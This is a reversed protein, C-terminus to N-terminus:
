QMNEMAERIRDADGSMMADWGVMGIVAVMSLITLASLVLGIIACVRGAKLNSFSKPAYGMPNANYLKTDKAALVLAIIALVIGIGYFCCGVISIIGLVLVTTANPLPMQMGQTNMENEM